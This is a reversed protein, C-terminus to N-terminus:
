TALPPLGARQSIGRRRLLDNYSYFINRQRRTVNYTLVDRVLGLPMQLQLTDQPSRITIETSTGNEARGTTDEGQLEYIKEQETM